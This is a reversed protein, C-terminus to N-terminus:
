PQCYYKNIEALAQGMDLHSTYLPAFGIAQNYPVQRTHSNSTTVSDM